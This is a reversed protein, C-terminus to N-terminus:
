DGLAKFRGGANTSASAFTAEWCQGHSGQLQVRLPLPLPATSSPLPLSSGRGTVSLKARGNSGPQVLIKALGDPTREVDGYKIGKDGFGRGLAHWCTTSGCMGAAPAAAGFLTASGDYVCVAYGDDGLPNGLDAPTTAAGHTWSWKFVDRADNPNNRISLRSANPVVPRRCGAMPATTCAGEGCETVRAVAPISLAGPGPLNTAFNVLAGSQSPVSPICFVSALTVAAPSSPSLPGSASGNLEISRCDDGDGGNRSVHAGFCGRKPPDPVNQGPCFFGNPNSRSSSGTTLQPSLTIAGLNTSGDACEQESLTGDPDCPTAPVTGGPLCDATLGQPNTTVCAANPTAGGVCHGSAPANPSGVLPRGEETEPDITGDSCFPCPTTIDGTLYITTRLTVDLSMAGSDLNVSGAVQNGFRHVMCTAPPGPVPQPLGALCNPGSCAFAGDASSGTPGLTCEEGACCASFRLAGGAPFASEPLVSLGGGAVFGGCGLPALLNGSADRVAGCTGAANGTTLELQSVPGSCGPDCADLAHATPVFPFFFLLAASTWRFRM